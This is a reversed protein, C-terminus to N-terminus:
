SHQTISKNKIKRLVKIPIYKIGFFDFYVATNRDTFLSVWDTRKSQKDDLNIM